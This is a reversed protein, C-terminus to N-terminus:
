KIEHFCFRPGGKAGIDEVYILCTSSKKLMPPVVLKIETLHRLDRDFIM